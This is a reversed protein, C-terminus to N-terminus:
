LTSPFTIPDKLLALRYIGIKKFGIAEYAKKAAPNDTFLVAKKIGNSKEKLLASTILKRAFGKNRYEKPTWVPGVQLMDKLRSNFGVLSM